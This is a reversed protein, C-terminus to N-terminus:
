NSIKELISVKLKQNDPNKFWEVADSIDYGVREGLYYVAEGERTLVQRHLAELIQGRLTFDKADMSAYTLFHELNEAKEDIAEDLAVDIFNNSKNKVYAGTLILVMSAKEGPTMKDMLRISKKRKEIKSAKDDAEDAEDFIVHTADPWKNEKWEKLSNAVFKNAKMNKVKIRDMVKSTDFFMTENPLRINFAKQSWTPHEEAPNFKNSLDLGLEKGWTEAEEDTLGTAYKGTRPDYLVQSGKPQAFAEKGDKKHWKEIPLPRVEVISM